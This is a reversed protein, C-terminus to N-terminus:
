AVRAAAQIVAARHRRDEPVLEMVALHLKTPIMLPSEPPKAGAEQLVHIAWGRSKRIAPWADDANL